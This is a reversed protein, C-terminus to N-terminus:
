ELRPWSIAANARVGDRVQLLFAQLEDFLAQPNEAAPGPVQQPVNALTTPGAQRPPPPPAPAEAPPPAPAEAPPPAPAQPAPRELTGLSTRPTRVVREPEATEPPAPRAPAPPPPAPPAERVIGRVLDSMRVM